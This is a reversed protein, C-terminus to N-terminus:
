AMLGARLTLAIGFVIAYGGAILAVAGIWPRFDSRRRLTTGICWLVLGFVLTFAQLMPVAGFLGPRVSTATRAMLMSKIAAVKVAPRRFSQASDWVPLAPTPYV